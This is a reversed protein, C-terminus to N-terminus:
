TILPIIKSGHNKLQTATRRRDKPTNLNYEAAIDKWYRDGRRDVGVIPNTSIKLWASVLRLNEQESWFIRGEKKESEEPSSDNDSWVLTNVPDVGIQQQEQSVPSASGIPSSNAGFNPKLYSNGSLLSNDFFALINL